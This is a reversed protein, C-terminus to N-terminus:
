NKILKKFHNKSVSPKNSALKNNVVNQSKNLNNNIKKVKKSLLLYSKKLSTINSANLKALYLPDSQLPPNKYNEILTFKNIINSIILYFLFFLIFYEILIIM